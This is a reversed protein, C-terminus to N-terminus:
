SHYDKELAEENKMNSLEIAKFPELYDRPLPMAM